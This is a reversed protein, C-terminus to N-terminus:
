CSASGKLGEVKTTGLNGVQAGQSGEPVNVDQLGLGRPLMCQCGEM